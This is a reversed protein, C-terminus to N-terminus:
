RREVEGGEREWSLGYSVAQQSKEDESDNDESRTKGFHIKRGGVGREKFFCLLSNHHSGSDSHRLSQKLLHKLGLALGQSLVCVGNRLPTGM